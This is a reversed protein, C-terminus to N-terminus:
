KPAGKRKGICSVPTDEVLTTIVKKRVTISKQDIQWDTDHVLRKGSVSCEIDYAPALGILYEPLAIVDDSAAYYFKVFGNQNKM